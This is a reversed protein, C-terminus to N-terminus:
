HGVVSLVDVTKLRMMLRIWILNNRNHKKIRSITEESLQKLQFRMLFNLGVYNIEAHHISNVVYLADTTKWVKGMGTTGTEPFRTGEIYELHEGCRHFLKKFLRM